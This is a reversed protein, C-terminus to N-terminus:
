FLQSLSQIQAPTLPKLSYVIPHHIQKTPNPLKLFHSPIQPFINTPRPHIFLYITHFVYTSVPKFPQPILHKNKHPTINPHLLFDNL